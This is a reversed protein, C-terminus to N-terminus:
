QLAKVFDDATDAFNDRFKGTSGDLVRQVSDKASNYDISMLNVISQRAAATFEAVRQNREGAKHHQWLMVATASWLALLVVMAVAGTVADRWSSPPDLRRRLEEAREHAADARAQAEAARAEAEAAPDVSPDTSPESESPTM